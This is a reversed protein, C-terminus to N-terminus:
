LLSPSFICIFFQVSCFATYNILILSLGPSLAQLAQLILLHCTKKETIDIGSVRRDLFVAFGLPWFFTLGVYSVFSLCLSLIVPGISPDQSDLLNSQVNLTGTSSRNSRWTYRLNLPINHSPMHVAENTLSDLMQLLKYSLILM